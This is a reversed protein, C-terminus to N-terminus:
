PRLVKAAEARAVALDAEFAANALLKAVIAQALKRGAAVDGPYHVGADLRNQGVQDAAALLADKKAPVLEALVGAWVASRLTRSSPYSSDAPKEICPQLRPEVVWPRRRNWKAKAQDVVAAADAGVRKLLKDTLPLKDAQFGAGLVSRYLYPSLAGEGRVRAVIEPTRAAQLALLRDLEARTAASDDTPPDPIVAAPDVSGPALYGAVAPKPNMQVPSAAPPTTSCGALLILAGLTAVTGRLLLQKM